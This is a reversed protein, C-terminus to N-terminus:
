KNLEGSARRRDTGQWLAAPPPPAPSETPVSEKLLPILEDLADRLKRAQGITLLLTPAREGHGELALALMDSAFSSVRVRGDQARRGTLIEIEHQTVTM